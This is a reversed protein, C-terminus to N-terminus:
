EAKVQVLVNRERRFSKFSGKSFKVILKGDRLRKEVHAIDSAPVGAAVAAEHSEFTQGTRIDM